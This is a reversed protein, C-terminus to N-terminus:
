RFKNYLEPTSDELKLMKYKADATENQVDFSKPDDIDIDIQKNYFFRQYGLKGYFNYLKDNAPLLFSYEYGKEELYLSAYELLQSSFGRGQYDPHTAVGYIMATKIIKKQCDLDNEIIRTEPSRQVNNEMIEMKTPIISLMSVINNGELAVLIKIKEFFFFFFLNIYSHEDGFCIHWMEKIRILDKKDAIRIEM